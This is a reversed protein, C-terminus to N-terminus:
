KNVSNNRFRTTCNHSAMIWLGFTEGGGEQFLRAKIVKKLERTTIINHVNRQAFCFSFPCQREATITKAHTLQPEKRTQRKHTTPQNPNRDSRRNAAAEGRTPAYIFSTRARKFFEVGTSGTRDDSLSTRGADDRGTEDRGVTFVSTTHFQSEATSYDFRVAGRLYFSLTKLKTEKKKVWRTEGVFLCVFFSCPHHHRSAQRTM